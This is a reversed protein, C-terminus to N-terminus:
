RRPLDRFYNELGDVIARAYRERGEPTRMAAEQEPVMLFLGETLAEPVWPPRAVALNQYHIGLDRLGLRRVLQAQLARALPEAHQHFFLTSSGHATFPNVGDPLANLHVSVFAHANARRAVIPRDALGVPDATTRTLIVTAGRARLLEAVRQGVPLVAVPEWLGTPGTAGGPPHGPDVVITLGALPRASDVAPPRRVRVVLANRAADWLVLYGYPDHALRATLRVRDDAEQEWVIQRVLSDTATGELRFIEPSLTVGHLVLDLDRGREFVEYPPRDGVPLVVDVWDRAPVVRAASVVRRPPAYGDPLPLAADADVWAQLRADLRVRAMGGMVATREVVTGPLLFYRYTGDPTPRGIVVRDTDPVASPRGLQVYSRVGPAGLLEVRAPTLRVTDAGRAVVVRARPGAAALRAAAVDTAWLVSADAGGAARGQASAVDVLPVRAVRSPSLVRSAGGDDAPASDTAPAPADGSPLELWVRADRSARVAVRVAEDAPVRTRVDPIVSGSDVLRLGPTVARPTAVRVAVTRRAEEGARTAVLDYRPASAPPTPLYALFAGNPAVPVPTGNVTLTAAGSGVAGFVFTSDRPVLQNPTPSVVRVDLAGDVRSVPPLGTGPDTADATIARVPAPASPPTGPASACAAAGALVGAARVGTAVVYSGRTGPRSLRSSM